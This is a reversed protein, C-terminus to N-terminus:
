RTSWITMTRRTEGARWASRQPFHCISSFFAPSLDSHCSADPWTLSTRPSLFSSFRCTLLLLFLSTIAIMTDEPM